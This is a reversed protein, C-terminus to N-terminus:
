TTEKCRRCSKIDNFIMIFLINATCRVNVQRDYSSPGGNGYIQISGSDYYVIWKSFGRRRANSALARPVVSGFMYLSALPVAGKIRYRLRYM